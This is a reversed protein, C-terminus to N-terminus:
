WVEGVMDPGPLIHEPRITTSPFRKNVEEVFWRIMRRGKSPTCADIIAFLLFLDMNGIGELGTMLKAEDFRGTAQMKQYVAFGIDHFQTIRLMDDDHTFGHLYERALSAHSRPDLIPSDKTAEAKFTDHVHILVKLKWYAPGEAPVLGRRVLEELNLDLDRIHASVSGEAHGRRPKGYQINAQYRPDATITEYIAKWDTRAKTEIASEM